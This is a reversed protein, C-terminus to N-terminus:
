FPRRPLPYQPQQPVQMGLLRHLMSNIKWLISSLLHGLLYLYYYICLVVLIALKCGYWIGVIGLFGIGCVTITLLITALIILISYFGAM